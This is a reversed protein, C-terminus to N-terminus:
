KKIRNKSECVIILLKILSSASRFKLDQIKVKVRSAQRLQRCIKRLEVTRGDVM